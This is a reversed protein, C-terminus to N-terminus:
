NTILRFRIPMNYMVPVARGNQFGPQWKPMKEVVRLAEEDCGAGIGRIVQANQIFGDSDVVFRVIVLGQVKAERAMRPYKVNEALYRLLAEDGGPFSPMQEVQLFPETVEEEIVLEDDFSAIEQDLMVTDLGEINDTGAEATELEEQTPILEEDIVEEDPKVVPKIFKKVERSQVAVKEPPPKELEIPPPASLESYNLVRKEKIKIPIDEKKEFAQKIFPWSFGITVVFASILFAILANRNELKRLEYAGYAKNKNGFLLDVFPTSKILEPDTHLQKNRM